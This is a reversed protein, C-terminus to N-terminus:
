PLMEESFVPFRLLKPLICLSSHGNGLQRKKSLDYTDYNFVIVGPQGILMRKHALQSAHPNTFGKLFSVPLLIHSGCVPLFGLQQGVTQQIVALPHMQKAECETVQETRCALGSGTQAETSLQPGSAM